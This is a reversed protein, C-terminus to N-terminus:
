IEEYNFSDWEKIAAMLSVAGSPFIHLCFDIRDFSVIQIEGTKKAIEAATIVAQRLEEYGLVGDETPKYASIFKYIHSIELRTKEQNLVLRKV